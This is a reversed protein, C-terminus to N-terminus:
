LKLLGLYMVDYIKIDRNNKDIYLYMYILNFLFINEILEENKM